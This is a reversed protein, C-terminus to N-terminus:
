RLHGRPRKISALPTLQDIVKTGWLQLPIHAWPLRQPTPIPRQGQHAEGLVGRAVAIGSSM